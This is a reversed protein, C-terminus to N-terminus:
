TTEFELFYGIGVSEIKLVNSKGFTSFITEPFNTTVFVVGDICNRYAGTDRNCTTNKIANTTELTVKYCKGAQIM